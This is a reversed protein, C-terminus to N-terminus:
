ANAGTVVARELKGEALDDRHIIVYLVNSGFHFGAPNDFSIRLLMEYERIDSSRGAAPEFGYHEDLGASRHGFLRHDCDDELYSPPTFENWLEWLERDKPDPLAADWDSGGPLSWGARFHLRTEWTGVCPVKASAMARETSPAPYWRTRYGVFGNDGVCDVALLGTRLNEPLAIVPLEALNFQGLFRFAGWDRDDRELYPTGGLKSVLLGLVPEAVSFGLARTVSWRQLPARSVRESKAYVSPRPARALFARVSALAGRKAFAEELEASLTIPPPVLDAM